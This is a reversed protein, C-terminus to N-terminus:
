CKIGNVRAETPQENISALNETTKVIPIDEPLKRTKFSANTTATKSINAASTINPVPSNIQTEAKPKSNEFKFSNKMASSM